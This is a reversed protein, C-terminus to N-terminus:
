NQIIKIKNGEELFSTTTLLITENGKLGKKVEIYKDIIIGTKIEVYVVTDNEVLKTTNKQNNLFISNLPIFLINKNSNTFIIKILANNPINNQNLTTIEIDYKNTSPNQFTPIYSIIGDYIENQYEIEVKDNQKILRLEDENISTKITQTNESEITAIMQGPSTLSNEEVFVKTIKGSIPSLIKQYKIQTETTKKSSTAQNIQADLNNLLSEKQIKVNEVQTQASQYQNYSTKIGFELQDLQSEFTANLQDIANEAQKVVNEAMEKAKKVESNEADDLLDKADYYANKADRYSDKAIELQFKAAKEQEEFIDLANSKSNKSNKYNEYATKVSTEAQEINLNSVEETLYKSNEATYLNQNASSLQIKTLDTSLSDSLEAILENEEIFDGEEIHLKTIKGSSQPSINIETKASITAYKEFSINTEDNKLNLTDEIQIEKFRPVADKIAIEETKCGSIIFLSILLALTITTKKLM